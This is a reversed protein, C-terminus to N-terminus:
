SFKNQFSWIQGRCCRSKPLANPLRLIEVVVEMYEGEISPREDAVSGKAGFYGELM